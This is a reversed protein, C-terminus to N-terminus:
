GEPCFKHNTKPSKTPEELIKRFYMTSNKSRFAVPTLNSTPSTTKIHRGQALLTVDGCGDAGGVDGICGGASGGGSIGVSGVVVLFILVLVFSFSIKSSATNTRPNLAFTTPM